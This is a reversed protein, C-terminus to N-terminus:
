LGVKFRREAPEPPSYPITASGVGVKANENPCRHGRGEIDVNAPKDTSLHATSVSITKQTQGTNPVQRLFLGYQQLRSRMAM